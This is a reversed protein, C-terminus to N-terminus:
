FFQAGPNALGAQEGAPPHPLRYANLNDKASSIQTPISSANSVVTDPKEPKM